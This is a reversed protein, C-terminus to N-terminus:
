ASVLLDALMVEVQWSQGADLEQWMLCGTLLKVQMM